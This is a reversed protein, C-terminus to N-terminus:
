HNVIVIYNLLMGVIKQLLAFFRNLKTSIKFSPTKEEKYISKYVMNWKANKNESAPNGLENRAVTGINLEKNIQDIVYKLDIKENEM